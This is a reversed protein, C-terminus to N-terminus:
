NKRVLCLKLYVNKPNTSCIKKLTTMNLKVCNYGLKIIKQCINSFIKKLCNDFNDFKNWTMSNIKLSFYFKAVHKQNSIKIQSPCWMNFCNQRWFRSPLISVTKGLALLLFNHFNIAQLVNAEPINQFCKGFRFCNSFLGNVVKKDECYIQFEIISVDVQEVFREVDWM